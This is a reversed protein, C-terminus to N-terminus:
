KSALGFCVLDGWVIMYPMVTLSSERKFKVSCIGEVSMSRVRAPRDLALTSQSVRGLIAFESRREMNAMSSASSASVADGDRENSLERFRSDGLSLISSRLLSLWVPSWRLPGNSGYPTSKPLRSLPAVDLLPTLAPLRSCGGPTNPNPEDSAFYSQELACGRRHQPIRALCRLM